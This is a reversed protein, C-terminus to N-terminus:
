LLRKVLDAHLSGGGRREDNSNEARMGDEEPSPEGEACGPRVLAAHRVARQTWPRTECITCLLGANWLDDLTQEVPILATTM